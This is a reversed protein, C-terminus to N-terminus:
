RPAPRRNFETYGDPGAEFDGVDDVSEFHRRGELDVSSSFSRTLKRGGSASAAPASEGGQHQDESAVVAAPM